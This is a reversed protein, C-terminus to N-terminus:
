SMPIKSLLGQVQGAMAEPGLKVLEAIASKRVAPTPNELAHTLTETAVPGLRFSARIAARQIAPDTDDLATAFAAM